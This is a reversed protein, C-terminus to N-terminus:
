ELTQNAAEERAEEDWWCMVKGVFHIDEYHFDRLSLDPAEINVSSMGMKKVRGFYASWDGSDNLQVVVQQGSSLERPQVNRLVACLRDECRLAYARSYWPFRFPLVRVSATNEDFLDEIVWGSPLGIIGIPPVGHTENKTGPEAFRALVREGVAVAGPPLERGGYTKRGELLKGSDVHLVSGQAQGNEAPESM